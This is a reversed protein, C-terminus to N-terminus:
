LILKKSKRLFTLDITIYVSFLQNFENFIQRFELYNAFIM